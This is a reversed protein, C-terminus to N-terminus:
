RWIKPYEDFQNAISICLSPLNDKGWIGIAPENNVFVPPYLRFYDFDNCLDSLFVAPVREHFNYAISIGNTKRGSELTHGLPAVSIRYKWDADETVIIVNGLARLERKLHSEIIDAELKDEKNAYVDVYVKFKVPEPAYADTIFLSILLVVILVTIRKM